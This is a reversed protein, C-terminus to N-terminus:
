AHSELIELMRFANNMIRKSFRIKNFNPFKMLFEALWIPKLSHTYAKIDNQGAKMKM